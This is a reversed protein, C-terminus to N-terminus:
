INHCHSFNSLVLKRRGYFFNNAPQQQLLLGTVLHYDYPVLTIILAM